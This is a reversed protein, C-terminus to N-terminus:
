PYITVATGARVIRFIEGSMSAGVLRHKSDFRAPRAPYVDAVKTVHGDPWVHSIRNGFFERSSGAAAPRTSPALEPEEDRHALVTM